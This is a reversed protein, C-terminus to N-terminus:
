YGRAIDVMPPITGDVRYASINEAVIRAASRKDTPASIHPLVTVSPHDWLPSDAPLPETDFVDLVAHDLHGSDLAAILDGTAVIPGRAFNVLSAGERMQGFRAADLLGRTGETLPLLCVLIDAAALVTKLGDEGAHCAVGDISKPRRSWGAVRFGAEGLRLAAAQGLAGLGLLAVTMEEARRYPRQKWLHARQQRAYAPMDRFLYLTWALVAEAMKDALAPDVLRVIPVPRDALEAVLREVGAWVSQIWRCNPLLAIDAPDPNAVIAIECREREEPTMSRVSTVTEDLLAANLADAWADEEEPSLRTVLAIPCAM